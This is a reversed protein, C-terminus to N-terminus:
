AQVPEKKDINTKDIYKDILNPLKEFAASLGHSTKASIFEIETGKSALFGIVTMGLGAAGGAGGGEGKTKDNGEGSGGGFGMGVAIVPVCTFEGLKFPQGILTETKAETKLFETVKSLLDNLNTM